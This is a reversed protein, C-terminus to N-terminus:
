ANFDIHGDFSYSAPGEMWLDHGPGPWRIDLDGGPLRVRVQPGVADLKRLVAVAGCAGSGCAQTEGAGREWVRLRIEDSAVIEAFGINARQPFLAHTELRPGLTTVPAQDVDGVSLVAHPNGLAVAGFMWTTDDVIAAYRDAAQAAELPIRLPDFVPEGMNVIVQTKDVEVQMRTTQTAFVLTDQDTLGRDVAYRAVCRVGNGCQGVETGDANLVRYGFDVGLEDTPELILVQDCGVGRRRDALRRVQPATLPVAARTADIVVFDNGLAHMKTFELKMRILRQKHTTAISFVRSADTRGGM